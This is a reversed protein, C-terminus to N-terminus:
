RASNAVPAPDPLKNSRYSCGFDHSIPQKPSLGVFIGWSKVSDPAKEQRKGKPYRRGGDVASM